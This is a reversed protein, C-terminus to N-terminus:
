RRESGQSLQLSYMKSIFFSLNMSTRDNPWLYEALFDPLLCKFAPEEEVRSGEERWCM